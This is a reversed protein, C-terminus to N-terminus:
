WSGTEIQWARRWTERSYIFAGLISCRCWVSRVEQKRDKVRCTFVEKIDGPKCCYDRYM